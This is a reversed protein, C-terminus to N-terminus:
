KMGLQAPLTIRCPPDRHGDKVLRNIGEMALSFDVGMSTTNLESLVPQNKLGEKIVANRDFAIGLDTKFVRRALDELNAMLQTDAPTLVTGNDKYQESRQQLYATLLRTFGYIVKENTVKRVRIGNEMMAPESVPDLTRTLTRMYNDLQWAFYAYSPTPTQRYENQDASEMCKQLGSRYGYLLADTEKLVQVGFSDVPIYALTSNDRILQIESFRSFNDKNQNEIIEHFRQYPATWHENPTDALLLTTLLFFLAPLLRWDM